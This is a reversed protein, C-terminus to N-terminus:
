PRENNLSIRQWTFVIKFESDPFLKKLQDAARQADPKTFFEGCLYRSQGQVRHLSWPTNRNPNKMIRIEREM